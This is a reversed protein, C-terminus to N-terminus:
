IAESNPSDPVPDLTPFFVDGPGPPSLPTSPESLLHRGSESPQRQAMYSLPPRAKADPMGHPSPSIEFGPNEIGQTNNSDMRVLEQARRNTAVQRQKYVLLLILPLCLIGVICAGTALAAATISESERPSPPYSICQFSAEKDTHVQLEMAGYVRQESHHHRIEVVLCCYLGSDMSTLNRMTISFNGHHDSVSELGYRQALDQSTNAQHGSHHLHLDQFTLNRIPRRESCVQVEGRSSRYWTKYYTVDHGKAMPGMIKCTLTVNQGESCVYLSYPTAVKFAAVLGSQPGLPAEKWKRRGWWVAWQHAEQAQM